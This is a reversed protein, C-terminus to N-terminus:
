LSILGSAGTCKQQTQAAGPKGESIARGISICSYCFSMLAGVVCPWISSCLSLVPIYYMVYHPVHWTTSGCTPLTLCALLYDSQDTCSATLLRSLLRQGTTAHAGGVHWCPECGPSGLKVLLKACLGTSTPSIASSCKCPGACYPLASCYAAARYMNFPPYAAVATVVQWASSSGSLVLLAAM